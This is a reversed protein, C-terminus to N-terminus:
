KHDLEWQDDPNLRKHHRYYKAAAISAMFNLLGYGLAIDVFMDLRDFIMGMLIILVIAKTGVINVAVLRDIVTPGIIARVFVAGMLIILIIGTILYLRDM